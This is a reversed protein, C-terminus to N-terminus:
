LGRAKRHKMARATARNTSSRSSRRKIQSRKAGRSRNLKESATIKVCTKGDGALKYGKQCVKRKTRTGSSDIKVVVKENVIHVIDGEIITAM